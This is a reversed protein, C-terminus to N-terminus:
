QVPGQDLLQQLKPLDATILGEAEYRRAESLQQANEIPGLFVRKHRRKMEAIIADNFAPRKMVTFPAIFVDGMFQTTTLIYMSDFSLLRMIDPLSTGYVWVPKLEKISVMLILADSQILTRDDTKLGELAQVLSVHGNTVNDVINLIFRTKPFQEYYEKLAPTTKYFENIEEWKYYVLKNGTMIPTSPNAEQEKLKMDMFERDRRPDLVYPVMDESMRVDAWIVVDSKAEVAKKVEDLTNAKVIVLPAPGNFFAHEYTSYTQGMGWIRAMLILIAVAILSVITIFLIRM